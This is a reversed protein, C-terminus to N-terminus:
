QPFFDGNDYTISEDDNYFVISSFRGSGSGNRDKVYTINNKESNLNVKLIKEEHSYLSVKLLQDNDGYAYYGEELSTNIMKDDYSKLIINFELDKNSHNKLHLEGYFENLNEGETFYRYGTREWIIQISELNNASSKILDGYVTSGKVLGIVLVLVIGFLAKKSHEKKSISLYILYTCGIGIFPMIYIITLHFGRNHIDNEWAKLGLVRVMDDAICGYYKTDVLLFILIATFVIGLITPLKKRLLNM